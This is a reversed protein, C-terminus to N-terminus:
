DFLDERECFGHDGSDLGLHAHHVGDERHRLGRDRICLFHHRDRRGHESNEILTEGMPAEIESCLKALGFSTEKQLWGARMM